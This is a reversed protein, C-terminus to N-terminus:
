QEAGEIVCKQGHLAEFQKSFIEMQMNPSISKRIYFESARSRQKSQGYRSNQFENKFKSFTVQM